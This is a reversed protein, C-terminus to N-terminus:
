GEVIWHEQQKFWETPDNLYLMTEDLIAFHEKEERALAAYFINATQDTSEAAIKDYLTYSDRELGEAVLYADNIDKQTEFNRDLSKQLKKLIIKLLDEKTPAVEVDKLWDSALKKEGTLNRYFEKIKELHVLEREALSSLTAAALPNGTRKATQTYFDYGKKELEISLKVDAILDNM